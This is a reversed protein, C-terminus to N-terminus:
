NAYKQTKKRMLIVFKLKERRKYKNVTTETSKTELQVLYCAMDASPLTRQM